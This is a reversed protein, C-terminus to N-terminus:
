KSTVDHRRTKVLTGAVEWAHVGRKAQVHGCVLGDEGIEGGKVYLPITAVIALSYHMQCYYGGHLKSTAASWAMRVL